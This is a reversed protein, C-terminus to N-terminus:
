GEASFCDTYEVAAASQVIRNIPQILYKQKTLNDTIIEERKIYM